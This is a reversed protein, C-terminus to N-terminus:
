RDYLPTLSRPIAKGQDLESDTISLVLSALSYQCDPLDETSNSRSFFETGRAVSLYRHRSKRLDRQTRIMAASLDDPVGQGNFSISFDRALCLPQNGTSYRTPLPLVTLKSSECAVSPPPLFVCIALLLPLLASLSTLPNSTIMSFLTRIRSRQTKDSREKDM